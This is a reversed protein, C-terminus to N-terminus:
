PLHERDPTGAADSLGAVPAGEEAIDRGIEILSGLAALASGVVVPVTAVWMGVGLVPSTEGFTVRQILLQAAYWGVIIFLVVTAAASLYGSLRRFAPPMAAVLLLIRPHEGRRFGTAMGLFATWIFLFRALEETWPATFGFLRSAAQASVAFLLGAVVVLLLIDVARWILRDIDAGRQGAARHSSM